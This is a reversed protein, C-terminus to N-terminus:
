VLQIFSEPPAVRAEIVPYRAGNVVAADPPPRPPPRPGAPPPPPAQQPGRRSSAPQRPALWDDGWCPEPGLPAARVAPPSQYPQQEARRAPHGPQVADAPFPPTTVGFGGPPLRSRHVEAPPDVPPTLVRSSPQEWGGEAPQSHWNRPQPDARATRRGRGGQSAPAHQAPPQLPPASHLRLSPAVVGRLPPAAVDVAGQLPAAAGDRPPPDSIRQRPQVRSAAPAAASEDAPPAAAAEPAAAEAAPTSSRRREEGPLLVRARRERTTPPRDVPQPRDPADARITSGFASQGAAARLKDVRRKARSAVPVLTPNRPQPKDELIRIVTPHLGKAWTGCGPCQLLERNLGRDHTRGGLFWEGGELREPPKTDFELGTGRWRRKRRPSSQLLTPDGDYDDEDYDELGKLQPSTLGLALHAALSQRRGRPSPHVSKRSEAEAGPAPEAAPKPAKQGM